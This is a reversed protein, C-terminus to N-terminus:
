DEEDDKLLHEQGPPVGEPIVRLFDWFIGDPHKKVEELLNEEVHFAVAFDILDEVNESDVTDKKLPHEKIFPKLLEKLEQVVSKDM